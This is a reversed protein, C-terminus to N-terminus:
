GRVARGGVVRLKKREARLRKTEKLYLRAVTRWSGCAAITGPHAQEVRNSIESDSAYGRGIKDDEAAAKNIAERAAHYDDVSM